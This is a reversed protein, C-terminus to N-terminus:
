VSQAVSEAQQTAIARALESRSRLELKRYVNALHFEITKSSVFLAAAAERNSAGDAV